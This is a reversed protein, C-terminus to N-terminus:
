HSHLNGYTLYQRFVYKVPLEGSRCTNDSCAMSLDLLCFLNRKDASTSPIIRLPPNLSKCCDTKGDADRDLLDEGIIAM